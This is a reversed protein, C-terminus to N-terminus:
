IWNLNKILAQLCFRCALFCRLTLNESAIVQILFKWVNDVIILYINNTSPIVSFHREEVIENNFFGLM